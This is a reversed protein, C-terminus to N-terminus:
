ERRGWPPYPSIRVVPEYKKPIGKKTPGTWFEVPRATEGHLDGFLVNLRGKYHRDNPIRKRFDQLVQFDELNPGDAYASFVLNAYEDGAATAAETETKPGADILLLCSSPDHVRGINGELRKGAKEEYKGRYGDRWCNPNGPGGLGTDDDAGVIDENIAYSLYGWYHAGDEPTEWGEQIEAFDDEDPYFPTSIRVNDSPCIAMEFQTDMYDERGKAEEWDRARVGWEYNHQYKQAGAYSALVVPWALLEGPGDYEFKTKSRDARARAESGAALQFREKHENVFLMSAQGLGRTNALCKIEKARTRARSLSPLLISILLAIISIVVLLEVLTFGRDFDRRRAYYAPGDPALAPRPTEGRHETM